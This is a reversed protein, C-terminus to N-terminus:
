QKQGGNIKILEIENTLSDKILQVLNQNKSYLCATDPKESLEGTLVQKSDAILRIQGPRKARYYLTAHDLKFAHDTIIVVKLGREVAASLESLILQLENSALSLYIREGAQGILNKM